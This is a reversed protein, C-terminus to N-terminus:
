AHGNETPRRRWPLLGLLRRRSAAGLLGFWAVAVVGAFVPLALLTAPRLPAAGAYLWEAALGCAGVLAVGALTRLWQGRLAPGVVAAALRPFRLSMLLRGAIVGAPIAWVEGVLRWALDGLLLALVTAVVGIGVRRGIRLGLDQLQAESRILILQLAELVILFEFLGGLHHEGGVWLAVFPRNFLLAGACLLVALFLTLDRVGAAAAAIRAADGGGVLRGVGPMSASGTMFALSIAVQAAYATFVYDTVAGAGLRFGILLLDSALLLKVVVSWLVVGGSFGFFGRVQPRTPRAVGFWPVRRRAQRWILLAFLLSSALVIAALVPLGHGRWAAVLMVANSAAFLGARLLVSVHGQNTGVLVADPAGLLPILLLNLALLVAAWRLPAALEPPVGAILHPLAWVLGGCVLLSLPLFLAWVILASGVAQRQAHDDGAEVGRAVLWKLAQTARGDAVTGFDMIRQLARWLGFAVPGLYQVLLPSAVLTVVTTVAFHLYNALANRGAARLLSM